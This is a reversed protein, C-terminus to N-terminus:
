GQRSLAAHEIAFEKAGFCRTPECLSEVRHGAAILALVRDLRGRSAHIRQEVLEGGGYLDANGVPVAAAVEYAVPVKGHASIPIFMVVVLAM